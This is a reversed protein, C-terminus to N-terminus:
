RPLYKNSIISDSILYISLIICMSLGLVTINIYNFIFLFSFISTLIGIILFNIKKAIILKKRDKFDDDDLKFLLRNNPYEIACLFLAISIIPGLFLIIVKAINQIKDIEM